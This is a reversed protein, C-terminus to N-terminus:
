PSDLLRQTESRLTPKGQLKRQMQSLLGSGETANENILEPFKDVWHEPTAKVVLQVLITGIGCGVATLLLFGPLRTLRFIEFSSELMFASVGLELILVIIFKFNNFIREFINFQKIGLKRSNIANFIQMLMFTAFLLSYHLTRHTADGVNAGEPLTDHLEYYYNERILNYEFGFIMPAFYLITVMVLVQYLSGTIITRWMGKTIIKDHLKVKQKKLETPHPPETALAIAALSDM